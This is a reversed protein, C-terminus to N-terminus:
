RDYVSDGALNNIVKLFRTAPQSSFFNAIVHKQASKGMRVRTEPAALQQLARVLADVNRPDVLLGDIGDRVLEPIGGVRTAVVPKALAMAELLSRPLGETFSPLLVVDARAVVAPVDDRWGLFHVREHLGLDRALQHLQDYFARSVEIPVDGCLWLDAAIGQDRLCALAQLAIEHGKLPNSIVAPLVVRLRQGDHAPLGRPAAQAQALTEEVDIGDYVPHINGTAFTTSRLFRLNDNSVGVAANVRRWALACYPTIRKLEGRVFYIIPVERAAALWAVFLAKESDVWIARPKLERLTVRLRLVVQALDPVGVALRNLREIRSRGGITTRGRWHPFLVLPDIGAASLSGLYADCTGYVDVVQVDTLARLERVLHVTSRAGGGYIYVFNFYLVANPLRPSTTDKIM